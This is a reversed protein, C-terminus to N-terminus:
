RLTALVSRGTTIMVHVGEDVLRRLAAANRPRVVEHQDLLTGDLDTFVLISPM